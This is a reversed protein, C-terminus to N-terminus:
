PLLCRKPSLCAGDDPDCCVVRSRNEPVRAAQAVKSDAVPAVAAAQLCQSCAGTKVRQLLSELCCNTQPPLVRVHSLQQMM